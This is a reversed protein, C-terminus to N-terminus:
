KIKISRKMKNMMETAAEPTEVVPEAVTGDPIAISRGPQGSTEEEESQNLQDIEDLVSGTRLKKPKVFQAVSDNPNIEVASAGALTVNLSPKNTQNSMEVTAAEDAKKKDQALKALLAFSNILSKKVPAVEVEEERYDGMEAEILKVMEMTVVIKPNRFRDIDLEAGFFCKFRTNEYMSLFMDDFDAICALSVFNQIISLVDEMNLLLWYNVSEVMLVSIVNM